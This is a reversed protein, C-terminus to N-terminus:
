EKKHKLSGLMRSLAPSLDGRKLVVNIVSLVKSQLALGVAEDLEDETSVKTGRGGGILDVIKHYEWNPIDNFPGDLIVRETAYGGNNLVFVIPNLKRAVITSLESCSMQFAGDGVLVVPRINPKALQVGLGGPIATGMSTYFAPSIFNNQHHVFLDASGFLSEGTDAIIAMDKTLISNIKDFFRSTTIAEGIRSIFQRREDKVIVPKERKVDSEVKFLTKAFDKFSVNNYVHNRIQLGDVSCSIVGRRNSRYPIFGFTVDAIMVGLMILCDSEDVRRQVDSKSSAGSYVGLFLPHQEGVVSKSLLTTCLPIGMREAFKVLEGALGFRAVEIGALIIPNKATEIWSVTEKIAEELNQTDTKPADPTGQTYVDYGIAKNAVDRPLEIYVPQKYHVLAELVRDIEYGARNPDSLVTSACTIAEFIQHQCEYSRVMHHLMLGRDREKIGPAGSIIVLPSKEAYACQTANIVKSAGVSYTVCVCGIGNVRAYADAAFGAGAEDSTNVIDVLKSDSLKKFFSIIYDGCLGFAHRVGSQHLREILFESVSPM